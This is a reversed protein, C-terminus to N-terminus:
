DGLVPFKTHNSFLPLQLHNFAQRSPAQTILVLLVVLHLNIQKEM